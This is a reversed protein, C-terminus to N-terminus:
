KGLGLVCIFFEFEGVGDIRNQKVYTLAQKAFNTIAKPNAVMSSWDANSSGFAGGFAIMIKLNPNQGKLSVLSALYGTASQPNKINGNADLQLFTHIIHTCLAPNFNSAALGGGNTYGM